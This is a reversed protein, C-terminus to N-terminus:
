KPLNEFNAFRYNRRIDPSIRATSKTELSYAYVQFKGTRNSDYIVYQEDKSWRPYECINSRDMETIIRQNDIRLNVKDFDAIAIVVDKYTHLKRDEDLMYAVKTESPSVSLKHWFKETPRQIEEYGGLKGPNPTLLFSRAFDNGKRDIFIRGDKLASTAWEYYANSPHSILQEDGLSGDPPM